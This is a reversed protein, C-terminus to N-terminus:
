LLLLFLWMSQSFLLTRPKGMEAEEKSPVDPCDHFHRNVLDHVDTQRGAQRCTDNRSGIFLNGHFKINLVEIFIQQYELSREFQSFIDPVRRLFRLV